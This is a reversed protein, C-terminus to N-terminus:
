IRLSEKPSSPRYRIGKPNWVKSKLGSDWIKRSDSVFINWVRKESRFDGNVGM